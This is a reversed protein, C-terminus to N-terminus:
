WKKRTWVEVVISAVIILLYVGLWILWNNHTYSGEPGREPHFTYSGFIMAIIFGDVYGAITGIMVKRADVLAAFLIVLFGFMLLIFPWQRMGHLFFFVHTTLVYGVLLALASLAVFYFRNITKYKKM